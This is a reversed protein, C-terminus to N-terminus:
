GAGTNIYKLFHAPNKVKLSAEAIAKPPNGVQMGAMPKLMNFRAVNPSLKISHGPKLAEKGVRGINVAGEISSLLGRAKAEAPSLLKNTKNFGPLNAKNVMHVLPKEGKVFSSLRGYSVSAGKFLQTLSQKTM